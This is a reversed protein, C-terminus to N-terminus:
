VDEDHWYISYLRFYNLTRRKPDFPMQFLSLIFQKRNARSDMIFPTISRKKLKQYIQLVDSSKVSDWVHKLTLKKQKAFESLYADAEEVADKMLKEKSEHWHTIAAPAPNPKVVEKLADQVAKFPSRNQFSVGSKSTIYKEAILQRINSELFTSMTTQCPMLHRNLTLKILVSSELEKIYKKDEM